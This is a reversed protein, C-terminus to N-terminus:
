SELRLTNFLTELQVLGFLAAKNSAGNFFIHFLRRNHLNDKRLVPLIMGPQILRDM